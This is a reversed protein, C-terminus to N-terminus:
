GDVGEKKSNYWRIWEDIKIIEETNDQIFDCHDTLIQEIKILSEYIEKVSEKLTAIDKVMEEQSYSM